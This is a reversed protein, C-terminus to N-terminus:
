IFREDLNFGEIAIRPKGACDAMRVRVDLTRSEGPMLFIYNDSYEVPLVLDGTGSDVVKLRLMLAPTDGSNTLQVSFSGKGGSVASARVKAKPLTHLAKLNGEEKGQWYFNDSLVKGEADTLSL